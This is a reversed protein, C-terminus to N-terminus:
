RSAHEVRDGSVFWLVPRLPDQGVVLVTDRLLDMGVDGAYGPKGMAERVLLTPIRLAVGAIQLTQDPVTFGDVQAGGVGRGRSPSTTGAAGPVAAKAFETEQGGTNLLTPADAYPKVAARVLIIRENSARAMSLAVYNPVRAAVWRRIESTEGAALTLRKQVLDLIVHGTPHLHQPSLVGNIKHARFASPTGIAVVDTLEIRHGGIQIPLTGVAWTPVSAGAHDTGPRTEKTKLALLRVLDLTLLHDTAGTDLVLHARAEGFDVSVLPAHQPGGGADFTIPADFIVRFGETVPNENSSHVM